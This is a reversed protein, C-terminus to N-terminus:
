KKGEAAKIKKIIEGRRQLERKTSTDQELAKKWVAIADAKEGLAMHVDGLHDMIEIHQGEDKDKVAELLYKKAEAYQKKKYLVWGLSDVYAANDHDEDPLLDKEEKRQKRADDLAKRIMKEAEDLRMDHDAWVFGLDNNYTPNDPDRQLLSKLMDAAKDVQDMEIYINSLMYKTLDVQRQVAEPKLEEDKELQDIYDLYAKEAKQDEGAQHFVWGKLSLYAWSKRKPTGHEYDDIKKLADTVKGERALAKVLSERADETLAIIATTRESEDDGDDHWKTELIQNCLKEEDEFKKAQALVNDKIRFAKFLWTPKKMDTAQKMCVDVLQLSADYDKTLAADLALLLATNFKLSKSDLKAMDAAAKLLKALHAKNKLLERGKTQVWDDDGTKQNLEQIEKQLDQKEDARLGPLSVVVCTALVLGFRNLLMRRM